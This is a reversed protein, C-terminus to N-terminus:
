AFTDAAGPVPQVGETFRRAIEAKFAAYTADTRAERDLGEPILSRIAQRKSAGRVATLAEPTVHIGQGALAATFAAPVEGRDLVTTGAVDFIVLALDKMARFPGRRRDAM